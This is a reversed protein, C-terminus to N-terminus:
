KPPSSINKFPPSFLLKKINNKITDLEPPSNTQM